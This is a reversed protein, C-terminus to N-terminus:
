FIDGTPLGSGRLHPTENATMIWRSRGVAGIRTISTYLPYFFGTSEWPLGIITAAYRAIVGGHCFVAVVDDDSQRAVISDVGSLIREHFTELPEYYDPWESASFGDRWRRDGSARLKETPIYHSARVDNEAIAPEVVVDLGLLDALPQATQQARLMSSAYVASISETRVHEALRCAQERGARDLPPDAFGDGETVQQPLGHRILVLEM